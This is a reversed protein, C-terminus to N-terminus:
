WPHEEGNWQFFRGSYAMTLGEILRVLGAVSEQPTLTAQAGGMDTQVWGPHVPCVIVGDAQLEQALAQMVKNVAAKSSRYAYFGSSKRQLSGMQSSLTIVRPRSSMRLNPMLAMTVRLPSMTNVAFTESWSDYDMDKAGQPGGQIGANNILVDIVQDQLSRALAQVSDGDTVELEHIELAPNTRLLSKLETAQKPHPLFLCVVEATYWPVESAM